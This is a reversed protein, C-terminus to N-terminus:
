ASCSSHPLPVHKACEGCVYDVLLEAESEDWPEGVRMNRRDALSSIEEAAQEALALFYMAHRYALEDREIHMLQEAGYERITELLRYRM